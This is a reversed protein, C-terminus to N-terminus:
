SAKATSAQIQALTRGLKRRKGPEVDAESTIVPRDKRLVELLRQPMNDGDNPTGLDEVADTVGLLVAERVGDRIWTFFNMREM